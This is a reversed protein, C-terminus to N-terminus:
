LCLSAQRHGHAVRSKQAAWFYFVNNGGLLTLQCTVNGPAEDIGLLSHRFDEHELHESQVLTSVTYHRYYSDEVITQMYELFTSQQM